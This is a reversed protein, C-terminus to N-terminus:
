AQRLSKELNTMRFKFEPSEYRAKFILILRSFIAPNQNLDEVRLDLQHSDNFNQGLTVPLPNSLIQAANPSKDFILPLATAPLNGFIATMPQNMFRVFLPSSNVLGEAYYEVLQFDYLHQQALNIQAVQSAQTLKIVYLVDSM